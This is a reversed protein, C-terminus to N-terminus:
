FNLSVKTGFTSAGLTSNDFEFVARALFLNFPVGIFFHTGSAAVSGSVGASLGAPGSLTYDLSGSLRQWGLGFYPEIFGLLSKSAVLDIKSIRTKMFFLDSYSQSYRVAMSPLPNKMGGQLFAWKLDAGYVKYDGYGIYSFGVEGGFPLGKHLNFKPLALYSPVTATVGALTMADQFAQPTKIGTVEVGLDLGISAGLSSAPMYARHDSALAVTKVLTDVMGSTLSSLDSPSFSPFAEARPSIAGAFLALILLRAWGSLFASKNM